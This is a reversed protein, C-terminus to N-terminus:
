LAGPRMASAWKVKVPGTASPRTPWAWCERRGGALRAVVVQQGRRRFGSHQMAGGNVRGCAAFDLTMEHRRRPEGEVMEGRSKV